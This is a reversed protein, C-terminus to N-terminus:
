IRPARRRASLAVREGEGARFREGVAVGAVWAIEGDVEVVPVARREERPVKRDTFLDQLSKSGGVGAPRMRDGDRWGRVTVPGRLKSAAVRTSVGGNPPDDAGAELEWAGFRAAGPVALEVPEPAGAADGEERARTFRLLGYEVAARVGGPLDLEATGGEAGLELLESALRRSVPVDGALRRLVLRALAPPEARLRALEVSSEGGLIADVAADLLEAEEALQRSTEAITAEAAPAIARLAPMVEARIRARAFRADRNSSDERWDLGRDRCHERTDERTAELLPRVLRGRRPQMGLLARGGPSSALRYVVTEAQDSLTHAAAYDGAALREAAEYRAARARAQLNGGPALAPREVALEVGVRDCLARCHAEDDDAEPRLGHNVHLASVQADLELAVDLLCVSDAGGSLMVLLPEGARVLGSDRAAEVARTM